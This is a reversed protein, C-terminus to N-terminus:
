DINNKINEIVDLEENVHDINKQIRKRRNEHQKRDIEADSLRSYDIRPGSRKKIKRAIDRANKLNRLHKSLTPSNYDNIADTFINYSPRNKLHEAMIPEEFSSDELFDRNKVGSMVDPTLVNKETNNQILVIANEELPKAINKESVKIESVSLNNDANSIINLVLNKFLSGLTQKLSNQDIDYHKSIYHSAIIVLANGLDETFISLFIDFSQTQKFLELIENRLLRRLNLFGSIVKPSRTSDM